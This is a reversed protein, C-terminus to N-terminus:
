LVPFPKDPDASGVDDTPMWGKRGDPLQVLTRGASAELEIVEAGGHLTFLDVGGGLDSTATVEDALVVAAHPLAADALGGGGVLAGLGVLGLGAGLGLSPPLSRRAAVGLLGLGALIGGLWAAEPVTLAVQWPAFWPTPDPTALAERLGRRAFDLNAQVDPDRPLREAARRWSLVAAPAKGQRWLVNGLDYYVDGDTYGDELLARYGAEAAVLDGSALAANAEAFRPPAAAFALPLILLTM